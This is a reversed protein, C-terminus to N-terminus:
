FRQTVSLKFERGKAPLVGVEEFVNQVPVFYEEDLVNTVTANVALTGREWFFALRGMFYSPLRHSGATKGGTESVWTGGFTYGFAGYGTEQSTYTFFGSYVQEPLTNREYGKQLETLCSANLASIIGGYADVESFGARAPTIVVYEGNNSGCDGPAGIRTQQITAAGTFSWDDSLLAKVELEFGEAEEADLHGFPDARTREQRFLAGSGILRGSLADFKLGVEQLSSEALFNGQVIRAVAIGGADNTELTSNEAYMVYPAIGKGTRWTLATEFSFDDTDGSGRAAGFITAGTDVTEVDYLDYRLGVLLDFQDRFSWDSILFLATDTWSSTLDTDWGITGAEQSFPDDFIDNATSGVSLDRRDTVLYGSLFTQRTENDYNRYSVGAIANVSLDSGFDGEGTLSARLEYVDAIYEAAYGYSQYLQADMGDYFGELRLTGFSLDHELDAWATQTEADAIDRSSVFVTRRDLQTTGVGTDLQFAPNLSVGFDIFQRINTAGWTTGVVADVEGPQLRGDGNTDVLDTDQGTIYTGTDILDQTVRNWGLTQLYGSSSYSMGGAELRTNDGLEQEWTAQVLTREPEIGRYFSGSNEYEAYVYIGADRGSLEFPAGFDGSVIRKDYSGYTATLSGNVGEGQSRRATKETHPVFNLLGGIRGAGYNVPTPGRVVEIRESAGIPMPFTGPNEVRKFGKFFTDARGGRITPSGPVGFFSGTFTGPTTTILDNVTEISYRDITADSVVSVSRPTELYPKALGFVTDSSQKEILKLPDGTVIIEDISKVAEDQALADTAFGASIGLAVLASVSLLLRKLM